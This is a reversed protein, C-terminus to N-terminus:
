ILKKKNQCQLLEMTRAEIQYFLALADRWNKCVIKLYFQTGLSRLIPDKPGSDYNHPLHKCMQGCACTPWNASLQSLKNADDHTWEAGATLDKLVAIWNFGAPTQIAITNYEDIYPIHELMPKYKRNTQQKARPHAQLLQKM